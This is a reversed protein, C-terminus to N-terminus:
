QSILVLKSWGVCNGDWNKVIISHIRSWICKSHIQRSNSEWCYIRRFLLRDIVILLFMLVIAILKLRKLNLLFQSKKHSFHYINPLSCHFAVGFFFTSVKQSHTHFLSISPSQSRCFLWNNVTRLKQPPNFTNSIRLPFSPFIQITIPFYDSFLCWCFLFCTTESIWRHTLM